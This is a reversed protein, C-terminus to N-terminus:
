LHYLWFFNQILTDSYMYSVIHPRPLWLYSLMTYCDYSMTPGSIIPVHSPLGLQCITQCMGHWIVVQGLRVRCMDYNNYVFKM